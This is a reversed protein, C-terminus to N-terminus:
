GLGHFRIALTTASLLRSSNLHPVSYKHIQHLPVLLPFRWTQPNSHSAAAAAPSPPNKPLPPPTLPLSSVRLFLPTLIIAPGSPPLLKLPKQGEGATKRPHIHLTRM